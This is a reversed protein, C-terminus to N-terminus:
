RRLSRRAHSAHGRIKANLEAAQAERLAKLREVTATDGDREAIWEQVFRWWAGDPAILAVHQAGLIRRAEYDTLAHSRGWHEINDSKLRAIAYSIVSRHNFFILTGGRWEAHWVVIDPFNKAVAKAARIVAVRHRKEIKGDGYVSSCLEEVTFAGEPNDKFIVDITRQIRGLGKSM